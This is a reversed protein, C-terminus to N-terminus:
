TLSKKRWNEVFFFLKKEQFNTPTFCSKPTFYTKPMSLYHPLFIPTYFLATLFKGYYCKPTVFIQCLLIQRVFYQRLFNATIVNQRLLFKAHYFKAYYFISTFFFQRFLINAYFVNIKNIMKYLTNNTVKCLYYKDM